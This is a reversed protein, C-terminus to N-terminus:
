RSEQVSVLVPQGTRIFPEMKFVLFCLERLNTKGSGRQKTRPLPLIQVQTEQAGFGQSVGRCGAAKGESLPTSPTVGWSQQPCVQWTQMMTSLGEPTM